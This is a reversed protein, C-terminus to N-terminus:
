NRAVLTIVVALNVLTAVATVVPLSRELKRWFSEPVVVIDGPALFVPKAQATLRGLNLRARTGDRERLLLVRGLDARGTPGGAVSLLELVDPSGSLLYQGPRTVEGWVGVRVAGAEPQIGLASHQTSFAASALVALLGLGVFRGRRFASHRIGLASRLLRCEPARAARQSSM